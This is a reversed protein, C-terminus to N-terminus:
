FKRVNICLIERLSAKVINLQILAIYNVSLTLTDCYICVIFFRMRHLLKINKFYTVSHDPLILYHNNPARSLYVEQFHLFIFLM